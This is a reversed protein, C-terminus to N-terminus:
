GPACTMSESALTLATGNVKVSTIGSYAQGYQSSTPMNFSIDLSDGSYLGSTVSYDDYGTSSNLSGTGSDSIELIPNVSQDYLGYGSVVGNSASSFATGYQTCSSPSSGVCFLVSWCDFAQAQSKGAIGFTLAVSLVALLCVNKMLNEKQRITAIMAM